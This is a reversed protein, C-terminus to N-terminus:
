KGYRIRPDLAAYLVDVLLNVVVFTVIVLLITGQIVPYDRQSVADLLLRGIGPYTFISETIVAGALLTGVYLGFVTVVPLLANRLIHRRWIGEQDVGKSRATRVYDEGREASLSAKLFRALLGSFFFSMTAIPMILRRISEGFDEWIPVYGSTPLVALKIGFILILVIGILFSPVALALSVYGSVARNVLKHRSAVGFLALPFSILLSVVATGVVLHLTAPVRKVILDVVPLENAYSVGLDGTLVGGLWHLYQEFVPDNLGLADRAAELQLPTADPGLKILVPDGPVIFIMGWIAVSAILLVPLLQLLRIGIYRKM